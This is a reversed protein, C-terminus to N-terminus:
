ASNARVSREAEPASLGALWDVIFQGSDEWGTEAILWHTHGAFCHYDAQPYKNAVQEVVHAPVLRDQSAALVLTPCKVQSARVTTTNGKDLFPFAIEMLVRGSEPVLRHYYDHRHEPPIMQFSSYVVSAFSPKHPRRWFNRRMVLPLFSRIASLNPAFVDAPPAPCALVLAAVLNREALKQAILGGMSHGIVIPKEPLSEIVVQLDDVYDTLSLNGLLDMPASDADEGHYRLDPTLVRYGHAQFFAKMPQWYWGGGWMGHIMVVTKSM